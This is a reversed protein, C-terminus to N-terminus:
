LGHQLKDKTTKDGMHNTVFCYVNWFNERTNMTKCSLSYTTIKFKTYVFLKSLITRWLDITGKVKTSGLLTTKLSLHKLALVMCMESSIVCDHVVRDNIVFLVYLTEVTFILQSYAVGVIVTCYSIYNSLSKFGQLNLALKHPEWLLLLAFKQKWASVFSLFFHVM